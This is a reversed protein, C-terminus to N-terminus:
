VAPVRLQTQWALAPISEAAANAEARELYRAAGGEMYLEIRRIVDDASILDLCRPLFDETKRGPAGAAAHAPVPADASRKFSLAPDRLNVVDICLNRPQDKENHDGVPM